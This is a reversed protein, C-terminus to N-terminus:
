VVFKEVRFIKSESLHFVLKSLHNQLEQGLELAPQLPLGPSCRLCAPEGEPSIAQYPQQDCIACRM